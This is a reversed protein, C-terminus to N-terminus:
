KAHIRVVNIRKLGRSNVNRLIVFQFDFCVLCMRNVKLVVSQLQTDFRDISVGVQAM